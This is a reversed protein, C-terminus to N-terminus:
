IGDSVAYGGFATVSVQSLAPPALLMLLLALLAEVSAVGLRNATYLTYETM